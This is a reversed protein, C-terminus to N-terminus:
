AEQCLVRPAIRDQVLTGSPEYLPAGSKAQSILYSLSSRVVRLSGHIMRENEANQQKIRRAVTQLQDYAQEVNSRYPEKLREILQAITGGQKTGPMRAAITELLRVTSEHLLRIQLVLVDKKKNTVNLADISPDQLCTREHLLVDQLREYLVRQDSLITCLDSLLQKM